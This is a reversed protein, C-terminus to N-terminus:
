RCDRAAPRRRSCARPSRASDSRPSQRAAARAAAPAWHRGRSPAARGSPLLRAEVSPITVLDRTVSYDRAAEAGERAITLIVQTGVDGRIREVADTVEMNTTSVGDIRLVKDEDVLGARAAPSEPYISILILTDDRIGIRAGVGALKGRFQITHETRGRGDFVTSYPDLESLLGNLLLSAARPLDEPLEPVCQEILAAAADLSPVIELLDAGDRVELRLTCEGARLLHANPTIETADIEPIAAEAAALAAGLLRGAVLQDEFLYHKAVIRLCPEIIATAARAEAVAPLLALTAFAFFGWVRM